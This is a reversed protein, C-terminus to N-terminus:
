HFHNYIIRIMNKDLPVFETGRYYFEQPILKWLCYDAIEEDNLNCLSLKESNELIQSILILGLLIIMLNHSYKGYNNEVHTMKIFEGFKNRAPGLISLPGIQRPKFAFEGKEIYFISDQNQDFSNKLFVYGKFRTPLTILCLSDPSFCADLISISQDYFIPKLKLPAGAVIEWVVFSSKGKYIMRDVILFRFDSSISIKPNFINYIQM